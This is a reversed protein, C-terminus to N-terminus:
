LGECFKHLCMLEMCLRTAMAVMFVQIDKEEFGQAVSSCYESLLMAWHCNVLVTWTNGRRPEFLPGTM